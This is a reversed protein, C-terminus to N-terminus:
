TKIEYYSITEDAFESPIKSIVENFIQLDIPRQQFYYDTRIQIFNTILFVEPKTNLERRPICSIKNQLKKFSCGHYILGIIKANVIDNWERMLAFKIKNFHKKVVQFDQKQEVILMSYIPQEDSSFYQHYDPYRQVNHFVNEISTECKHNFFTMNKRSLIKQKETLKSSLYCTKM